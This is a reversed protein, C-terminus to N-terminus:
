SESVDTRFQGRDGISDAAIQALVTKQGAGVEVSSCILVVSGDHHVKIFCSSNSPTATGKITTAMGKGRRINGPTAKETENWRIGTCAKELTDKLGVGQLIQGNIYKDGERYINKLRLALPDMGLKAAIIDMQSECAMTVQTTGYGRYAGSIEKNTYVLQSFLELHPIRYPGFITLVGRVAVDPSKSSYAGNDLLLEAKRAMLTGDKKVGTKLHIVCGHRASTYTMMESRALQMKVPKGTIKALLACFHEVSIDAKGGFGGGVETGM